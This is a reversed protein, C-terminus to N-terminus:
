GGLMAKLNALRQKGAQKAAAPDDPEKGSVKVAAPDLEALFRSPEGRQWEGARKRKGCWTVTLSRQARTIGVYM